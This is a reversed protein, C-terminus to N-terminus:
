RGAPWRRSALEALEALPAAPLALGLAGGGGTEVLQAVLAGVGLAAELLGAFRGRPRRHRPVAQVAKPRGRRLPADPRTRRGAAPRRDPPLRGEGAEGGRGQRRRLHVVGAAAGPINGGRGPRDGCLRAAQRSRLRDQRPVQQLSLGISITIGLQERGRRRLAGAVQGASMGHLRETGSLDLVGRRDLGARGAADAGADPRPGARSVGAYKDM